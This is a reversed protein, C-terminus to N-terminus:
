ICKQNIAEHFHHGSNIACCFGASEQKPYRIKLIHEFCDPRRKAIPGPARLSPLASRLGRICSANM